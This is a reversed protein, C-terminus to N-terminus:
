LAQTLIYFFFLITPKSFVISVAENIEERHEESLSELANREEADRRERELRERDRQQQQQQSTTGFTNVPNNTPATQYYPNQAPNNNYTNQPITSGPRNLASTFSRSPFSPLASASAM